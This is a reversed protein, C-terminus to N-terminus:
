NIYFLDLIESSFKYTTIIVIDNRVLPRRYLSWSKKVYM